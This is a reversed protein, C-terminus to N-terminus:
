APGANSRRAGAWRYFRRKVMEVIALYVAVMAGLILYFEVPPPVFGFYAGIPTFPLLVAISVITLSTIVLAPHARSRLPNGRTRIIFIVLV